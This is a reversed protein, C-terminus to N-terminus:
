GLQLGADLEDAGAADPLRDAARHGALAQEGGVDVAAARDRQERVAAGERQLQVAARDPHIRLGVDPVDAVQLDVEGGPDPEALDDAPTGPLRELQPDAAAAGHVHLGALLLESPSGM